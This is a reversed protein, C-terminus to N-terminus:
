NDTGLLASLQDAALAALAPLTVPVGLRKEVDAKLERRFVATRQVALITMGIGIYAADQVAATLDTPEQNAVLANYRCTPKTEDLKHATAISIPAKRV